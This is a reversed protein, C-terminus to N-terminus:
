PAAEVQRHLSGEIAKWRPGLVRLAARASVPAGLDVSYQTAGRTGADVPGDATRIEQVVYRQRRDVHYLAAGVAVPELLGDFRAISSAGTAANRWVHAVRGVELGEREVLDFLLAEAVTRVLWHGYNEITALIAGITATDLLEVNSGHAVDNRRDALDDVVADANAYLGALVDPLEVAATGVGIALRSFSDRITGTRFNASHRSFLSSNLVPAGGLANAFTAMMELLEDSAEPDRETMERLAAATLRAHQARVGIPMDGYKGYLQAVTRATAELLDRCFREHTGYLFIVLFSYAQRRWAPSKVISEIADDRQSRPTPAGADLLEVLELLTRIEGISADFRIRSSQM